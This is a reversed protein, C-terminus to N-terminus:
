AIKGDETFEYSNGRISEAIYEESNCYDYEATLQKSIWRAFDRLSKCVDEYATPTFSEPLESVDEFAMGPLHSGGYHRLGIDIVIARRNHTQHDALNLTIRALDDDKPAHSKLARVSGRRYSYRGEFVCGDDNGGASWQFAPEYRTTGNMLKVPRQKLTIGLIEAIIAADELVFDPDFDDGQRYRDRARSKAKDSLEDYQFVTIEKTRPM